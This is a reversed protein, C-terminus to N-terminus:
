YPDLMERLNGGRQCSCNYNEGAFRDCTMTETPLCQAVKDARLAPSGGSSCASVALLALLGTSIVTATRM